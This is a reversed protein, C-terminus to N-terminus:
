IILLIESKKPNLDDKALTMMWCKMKFERDLIIEKPDYRKGIISVELSPSTTLELPDRLPGGIKWSTVKVTHQDFMVATILELLWIKTIFNQFTFSVLHLLLRVSASDDSFLISFGSSYLRTIRNLHFIQLYKQMWINSMQIVFLLYHSNAKPM